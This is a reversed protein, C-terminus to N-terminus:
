TQREIASRRTKLKKRLSDIASLVQQPLATAEKLVAVDSRMMEVAANISEADAASLEGATGAVDNLAFDVDNVTAPNLSQAAGAVANALVSITLQLQSKFMEDDVSAAANQLQHLSAQLNVTDTM